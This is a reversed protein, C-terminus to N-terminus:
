GVICVEPVLQVGTKQEVISRVESILTAIDASSASGENIIFNAHKISVVAGGVRKGKLGCSEILRAAHDGPPNRFVSGCNATGIPQTASRHELLRRIKDLSQEKEGSALEFEAALFWEGEGRHVNRYGYQFDAQARWYTEGRRNVCWVRSVHPWTEGGGCGANMALAGGVTGPIGALFELGTLAHRATFRALQASAVGAEAYVTTRNKEAELCNLQNLSGQTVVAMGAFGADAILCNSGLGLFILPYDPPVSQLLAIVDNVDSPLYIYDAKGGTRWSNYEALSGHQIWQGSLHSCRTLISENM